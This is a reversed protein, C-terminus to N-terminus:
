WRRYPRGYYYRPYHYYRPHYGFGIGVGVGPYYPYGYAYPYPYAYGYVPYGPRREVGRYNSEPGMNEALRAMESQSVTVVSAPQALHFNVRAEGPLVAQGGGSAASVGLGGAAGIGAGALAGGGGGLAGGILAGFVGLATTTGVTQGTKSHGNVTWPESQLPYTHGALTASVLQLTISGKGSLAGPETADLVTGQVQTGRPLAIQGDAVVDAAVFGEFNTGPQVRGSSMWRAVRVPVQTGAPITVSMGGPNGSDQNGYQQRGYAQQQGYPARGAMGQQQREYDRRYIRRRGQQPPPPTAQADGYPQSQADNYPEQQNAYPQQGQQPGNDDAMGQQEPNQQPAPPGQEANPDVPPPTLSAARQEDENTNSATAAGVSLQDVVKAVGQAHSAVKDALDRSAEDTVNGTLTVVGFATSAAIQQNALRPEKAMDRLVNAQVQADPLKTKQASADAGMLAASLVFASVTTTFVRSIM